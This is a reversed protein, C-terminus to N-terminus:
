SFTSQNPSDEPYLTLQKQLRLLVLEKDTLQDGTDDFFIDDWTGRARPAFIHLFGDVGFLMTAWTRDYMGESMTAHTVYQHPKGYLTFQSTELVLGQEQFFPKTALLGAACYLTGCESEVVYMKLDLQEEPFLTVEKIAEILNDRITM